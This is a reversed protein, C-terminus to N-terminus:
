RLAEIAAADIAGSRVIRPIDTSCDVVTSEQRLRTPGTIIAMSAAPLSTVGAEDGLYAPAGSINASTAALAGTSRLIAVCAADDPCRLSVTEGNLAAARAHRPSRKVIIAVPGPWFARMIRRAADSLAAAFQAADDPAALHIALPKDAPRDKARFVASVADANEPDCGIGYVTETPFILTGGAAICAKADALTQAGPMGNSRVIRM